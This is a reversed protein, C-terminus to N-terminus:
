KSPGVGTSGCGCCVYLHQLCWCVAVSSLMCACLEPILQMLSMLESHTRVCVIGVRLSGLGCHPHM